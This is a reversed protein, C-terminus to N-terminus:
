HFFHCFGLMELGFDEIVVLTRQAVNENTVEPLLTEARALRVCAGHYHTSFDYRGLRAMIQAFSSSWSYLNLVTFNVRRCVKLVVAVKSAGIKKFALVVM